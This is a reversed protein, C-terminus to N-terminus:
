KFIKLTKLINERFVKLNKHNDVVIYNSNQKNKIDGNSKGVLITPFKSLYTIKKRFNKNKLSKKSNIFIVKDFYKSFASEHYLYIGMEVFLLMSKETIEKLKSKMIPITLQNLKKLKTANSFVLKGLKKRAVCSANVFESGFHKKILNYGINGKKYIEHIYDDMAYTHYGQEKIIKLAETKGSGIEGTICVLMNIKSM